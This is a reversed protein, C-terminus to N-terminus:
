NEEGKVPIRIDICFKPQIKIKMTGGANEVVTRLTLLGGTENVSKKPSEGNSSVSFSIFGNEERADVTLTDGNAHKRTNTACENIAVSLINRPSGEAPIMGTFSVNVGIAKAMELAESLPDRQTDDEEYERLLYTNTIKLTNLLAEEDVSGPQEMFRRSALLVHGTENHVQMRANLLEKSIIIQEAKRNYIELRAKIQKLRSNKDKLEENIAAQASIDTATLQTYETGTEEINQKTLQWVSSGLRYVGKLKDDDEEEARDAIEVLKGIDRLNKESMQRYLENMTLNALVVKGDKRAFAVGAPLLDITEKVAWRTLNDKRYRRLRYFGVALYVASIIEFAVILAVPLSVFTTVFVPWTRPKSPDEYHFIGDLMLFFMLFLLIFQAFALAAFLGKRKLRHLALLIFAQLMLLIMVSVLLAEKGSSCLAQMVSM